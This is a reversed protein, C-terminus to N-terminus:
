KLHCMAKKGDRLSISAEEGSAWFVLGDAGVYKEGKDSPHLVAVVPEDKSRSLSLSVAPPVTKFFAVDIEDKLEDCYTLPNTADGQAYQVELRLLRATYRKFLCTRTTSGGCKDLEELWDRQSKELSQQRAGTLTRAASDYYSIVLEDLENLEQDTCVMKEIQRAADVCDFSGARAKGPVITGAFVLIIGFAARNIAPLRAGFAPKTKWCM